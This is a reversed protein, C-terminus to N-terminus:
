VSDDGFLCHRDRLAGGYSGNEYSGGDLLRMNPIAMSVYSIRFNGAVSLSGGQFTKNTPAREWADKLDDNIGYIHKGEPVMYHADGHPIRGDSWHAGLLFSSEGYGGDATELTVYQVSNWDIGEASAEAPALAGGMLVAIVPM